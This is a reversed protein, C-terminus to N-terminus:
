AAGIGGTDMPKDLMPELPQTPHQTILCNLRNRSRLQGTNQVPNIPSVQILHYFFMKSNPNLDLILFPMGYIPLGQASHDTLAFPDQQSDAVGSASRDGLLGNM